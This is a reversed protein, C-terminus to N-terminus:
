NGSEGPDDLAHIEAAGIRLGEVPIDIPLMQQVTEVRLPEAELDANLFRLTDGFVLSAEGEIVTGPARLTLDHVEYFMGEDRTEFWLDGTVTGESPFPPYIWQLDSLAVEEGRAHVDYRPADDTFSVTGWLAAQSEPLVLPTARFQVLDGRLLVEGRGREIRAPTAWVYALTSINDIQLYKGGREDGSILIRSAVADLEEFRMTRVFGGPVREVLLRSTDSLAEEIAVERATGTLDGEPEWTGRVIVLGDVFEALDVLTARPNGTSPTTDAFIEQYNWATDGPLKRLYLDPDYVVLREIVIDGGFFTPLQYDLYASDASLFLDGDADNLTIEYLRAGTLLNGELREVILKGNLQGGLTKLTFGLARERGWGTQSVLAVIMVVLLIGIVLGGM